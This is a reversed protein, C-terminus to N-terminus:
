FSQIMLFDFFGEVASFLQTKLVTLHWTTHRMNYPQITIEGNDSENSRKWCQQPPGNDTHMNMFAVSQNTITTGVINRRNRQM